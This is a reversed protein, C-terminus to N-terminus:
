VNGSSIGLLITSDWYVSANDSLLKSMWLDRGRITLFPDSCKAGNELKRELMSLLWGRSVLVSRDM